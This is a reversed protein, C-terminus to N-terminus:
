KRKKPQKARTSQIRVYKLKYVPKKEFFKIENKKSKPPAKKIQIIKKKKQDM